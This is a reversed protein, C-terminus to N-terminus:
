IWNSQYEEFNKFTALKMSDEWNPTSDSRRIETVEYIIDNVKIRKFRKRPETELIIEKQKKSFWCTIEKDLIGLFEEMKIINM